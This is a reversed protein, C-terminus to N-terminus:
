VLKMTMPSASRPLALSSRVEVHLPQPAGDDAKRKGAEDAKGDRELEPFTIRFPPQPTTGPQVNSFVLTRGPFSSELHAV